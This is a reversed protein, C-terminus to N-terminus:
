PADPKKIPTAGILMGIAKIDAPIEEPEYWMWKGGWTLSEDVFWFFYGYGEGNTCQTIAVYDKWPKIHAMEVWEKNRTDLNPVSLVQKTEKHIMTIYANM